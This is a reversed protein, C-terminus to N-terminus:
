GLNVGPRGTPGGYTFAGYTSGMSAAGGAITALASIRSQKQQQEGAWAAVKGSYELGKAQNEDGVAKNQGNWLDMLAQYSGRGAISKETALASGEGVNVGGAAGRAELSSSLQKTKLQTDLMQRQAAGIDSGENARVQDAQYQDAKQQLLGATKATNGGAITGAASIGSGVAQMAMTGAMMTGPDFVCVGRGPVICYKDWITQMLPGM